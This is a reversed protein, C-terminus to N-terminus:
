LVTPKGTLKAIADTLLQDVIKKSLEVIEDDISNTSTSSKQVQKKKGKQLYVTTGLLSATLIVMGVALSRLIIKRNRQKRKVTDEIKQVENKIYVSSADRSTCPSLLHIVLALFFLSLLNVIKM